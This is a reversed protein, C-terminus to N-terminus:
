EATPLIGFLPILASQQQPSHFLFTSAHKGIVSSALLQAREQDAALDAVITQPRMGPEIPVPKASVLPQWCHQCFEGRDDTYQKSAACIVM